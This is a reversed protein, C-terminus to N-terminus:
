DSGTQAGGTSRASSGKPGKASRSGTTPAPKPDALVSPATSTSPKVDSPSSSNGPSSQEGAEKEVTAPEVRAGAPLDVLEPGHEAVLQANSPGGHRTIKPM